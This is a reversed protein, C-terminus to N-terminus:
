GHTGRERVIHRIIRRAAVDRIPIKVTATVLGDPRGRYQGIAHALRKEYLKVAQARPLDLNGELYWQHGFDQALDDAGPWLKRPAAIEINLVLGNPLQVAM